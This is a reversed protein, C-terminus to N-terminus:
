SGPLELHHMSKLCSHLVGIFISFWLCCLSIKPDTKRTYPPGKTLMKFNTPPCTAPFQHQRISGPVATSYPSKACPLAGLHLRAGARKFRRTANAGRSIQLSDLQNVTKKAHLFADRIKWGVQISGKLWKLWGSTCNGHTSCCKGPSHLDPEAQWPCAECLHHSSPKQAGLSIWSSRPGKRPRSKILRWKKLYRLRQGTSKHPNLKCGRRIYSAM